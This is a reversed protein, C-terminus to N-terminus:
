WVEEWTQQKVHAKRGIPFCRPPIAPIRLWVLHGQYVGEVSLHAGIEDDPELAHSQWAISEVSDFIDVLGKVDLFFRSSCRRGDHAGGVVETAGAFLTIEWCELDLCYHCGLPALVDIEHLLTAVQNTFGELWRPANTM